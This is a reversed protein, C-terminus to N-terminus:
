SFNEASIYIRPQLEVSLGDKTEFRIESINTEPPNLYFGIGIKDKSPMAEIERILAGKADYLKMVVDNSQSVGMKVGYVATVHESTFGELERLELGNISKTESDLIHVPVSSHTYWGASDNQIYKETGVYFIDANKKIFREGSTIIGYSENRVMINYSSWNSNNFIPRSTDQEFQISGLFLVFLVAMEIKNITDRKMCCIKEDKGILNTKCGDLFVPVFFLVSFIAGFYIFVTHRILPMGNIQMWDVAQQYEVRAFRNFACVVYTFLISILVIRGHLGKIKICCFVVSFVIVIALINIIFGYTVKSTTNFFLSIFAQILDYFGNYLSFFFKNLSIGDGPLKPYDRGSLITMCMYILQVFAATGVSLCYGAMRKNRRCFLFIVMSIFLLLVFHSKSIVVISTLLVYIYTAKHIKEFDLLFNFAILIIGLYVFNIFPLSGNNCLWVVNGLFLSVCFRVETNWFRNYAPLIFRSCVFAVFFIEVGQMFQIAHKQLGVIHITFISILRQFLPWYGADSLFFSGRIGREFTQLYFNSGGEYFPEAAFFSYLPFKINITLIIAAISLGYLYFTKKRDEKKYLIWISLLYVSFLLFLLFLKIITEAPIFRTKMKQLILNKDQINDENVRLNGYLIQDTLILGDSSGAEGDIGEVRLLVPGRKFGSVTIDHGFHLDKSGGMPIIEQYEHEGQTLTLLFSGINGERNFNTCVLEFSLLQSDFNIEQELSFNKTIEPTYIHNRWDSTYTDEIYFTRIVHQLPISFLIFLFIIIIFQYKLLDQGLRLKIKGIDM